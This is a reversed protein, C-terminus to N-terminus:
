IIQNGCWECLRIKKTNPNKCNPCIEPIQINNSFSINEQNYKNSIFDIIEVAKANKSIDNRAAIAFWGIIPILFLFLDGVDAARTLKIEKGSISLQLKIENSYIYIFNYKNTITYNKFYNSLVNNLETQSIHSNITTKM